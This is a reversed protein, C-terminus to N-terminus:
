QGELSSDWGDWQRMMFVVDGAPADCKLAEAVGGRYHWVLLAAKIKTLGDPAHYFSWEM